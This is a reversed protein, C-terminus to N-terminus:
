HLPLLLHNIEMRNFLGPVSGEAYMDVSPAKIPWVSIVSNVAQHEKRVSHVSFIGYIEDGERLM